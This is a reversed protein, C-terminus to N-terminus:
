KKIQKAAPKKTEPRKLAIKKAVRKEIKPIRIVLMGEKVEAEGNDVDVYPPLGIIRSFSGFSSELHYYDEGKSEERFKREGRIIVKNDEVEVDVDAEKVGPIDAEILLEKNTERISVSPHFSGMQASVPKEFFRDVDERLSMMERWPSWPLLGKPMNGGTNIIQKAEGDNEEIQEDMEVTTESFLTEFNEDFSRFIFEVPMEFYRAIRLALAVSPICKGSELAIVSQRSIDLKEALEGQTLEAKERYKRLYSALIKDANM